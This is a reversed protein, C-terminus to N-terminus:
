GRGETPERSGTELAEVGRDHMLGHEARALFIYTFPWADIYGTEMREWQGHAVDHSTLVAALTVDEGTCGFTRDDFTSVQCRGM